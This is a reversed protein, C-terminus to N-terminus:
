HGTLRVFNLTGGIEGADLDFYTQGDGSQIRGTALFRGNITTAGYTLAILRAPRNGDTDTIM